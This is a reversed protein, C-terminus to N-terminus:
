GSRRARRMSSPGAIPRGGGAPTPPASAGLSHRQDASGLQRAGGFAARAPIHAEPVQRMREVDGDSLPTARGAALDLRVGGERSGSTFSSRATRNASPVEREPAAGRLPASAFTWTVIATGETGPFARVWFSDAPGEQVQARVGPPLEVAIRQRRAGSGPDVAVLSLEGREGPAAQAVLTGDVMMLPKAAVSSKWKITRSALDLAEIGGDAGMVFATEAAPDIVLGDHLATVRSRAPSAGQAVALAPVFLSCLLAVEARTIQARSM